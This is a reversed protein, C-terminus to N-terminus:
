ELMKRADLRQFIQRAQSEIGHADEWAISGACIRARKFDREEDDEDGGTYTKHCFFHHGGRLSALISRWRGARLSRRMALGPGDKNFPCDNCPKAVRWKRANM